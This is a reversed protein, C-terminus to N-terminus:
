GSATATPSAPRARLETRWGLSFGYPTPTPPPLEQADGSLVIRERVMCACAYLLSLPICPAEDAVLVDYRLPRFITDSVVRFATAAIVRKAQLFPQRKTNEETALVDRVRDVGGLREIEDKLEDYEPRMEPEVYAEPKLENIRGQVIELEGLYEQKQAEYLVCNEHMTSVNSGAIQMGIRQWFPLREYVALTDQLNKIKNQADGLASLLRWELHRVEDLDKQKEAKYKLIPAVELYRELKRRLGAKDSLSKGLFTSVQADFALDHLKIGDDGHGSPADYCCLFSRYQLGAGRLGKAVALLAEELTRHEPGILLVRKNAKVLETVIASLKTRRTGRDPEWITTLVSTVTTSRLKPDAITTDPAVWPILRDAPGFHYATSHQLIDELRHRIAQNEESTLRILAPLLDFAKM